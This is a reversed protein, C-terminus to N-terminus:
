SHVDPHVVDKELIVDSLGDLTREVLARAIKGREQWSNKKAIGIRTEVNNSEASEVLSAIRAVCDRPGTVISVHGKIEQVAPVATSVVAMGAALYEFTKLPNVGRTYPTLQYPILGVSCTWYLRSLEELPMLGHYVAGRGVLEEIELTADGGGEAIPGALHLEFGASIVDHFLTFDIKAKSLNGAFVVRNKIRASDPLRQELITEVDAVNPWHVVRKFGREVLHQEVVQSSGIAVNTNQALRDEAVSVM